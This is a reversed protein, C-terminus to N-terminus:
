IYENSPIDAKLGEGTPDTNDAHEVIYGWAVVNAGTISSSAPSTLLCRIEDTAEDEVVARTSILTALAGDVDHYVGAATVSASELYGDADSANGVVITNAGGTTVVASAGVSFGILVMRMGSPLVHRLIVNAGGAVDVGSALPIAIYSGAHPPGSHSRAM